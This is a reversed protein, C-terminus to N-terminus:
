EIQKLEKKRKNFTNSNWHCIFGCDACELIFYGHDMMYEPKPSISRPIVKIDIPMSKMDGGCSPCYRAALELPPYQDMRYM